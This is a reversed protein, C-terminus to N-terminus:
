EGEPTATPRVKQRAKKAPLVDDVAPWGSEKIIIVVQCPRGELADGDVEEGAEFQAYEVDTMLARSYRVARPKTKSKLNLSRSSLGTVEIPEGKDYLVAGDETLTFAWEYVKPDFQSKEIEKATVGDFRADYIGGEIDPADASVTGGALKVGM